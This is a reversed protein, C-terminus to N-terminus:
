FRLYFNEFLELTSWKIDPTQDGVQQAKKCFMRDQLDKSKSSMHELSTPVYNIFKHKWNGDRFIICFPNNKIDWRSEMPKLSKLTSNFRKEILSYLGIFLVCKGGNIKKSFLALPDTTIMIFKSTKGCKSLDVASLLPIKQSVMGKDSNANPKFILHGSLFIEFLNENGPTIGNFAKWCPKMFTKRNQSIVDSFEKNVLALALPNKGEDYLNKAAEQIIFIKMHKNNLDNFNINILDTSHVQDVSGLTLVLLLSIIFQKLNMKMFYIM